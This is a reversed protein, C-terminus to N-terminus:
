LFCAWSPLSFHMQCQFVRFFTGAKPQALQMPEDCEVSVSGTKQMWCTTFVVGGAVLVPLGTLQVM